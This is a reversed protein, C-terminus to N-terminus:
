SGWHATPKHVGLGGIRFGGGASLIVKKLTEQKCDPCTTIPDDKMSQVVELVIPEEALTNLDCKENECIYTYTPM